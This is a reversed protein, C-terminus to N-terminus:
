CNTIPSTTKFGAVCVADFEMAVIPGTGAFELVTAALFGTIFATGSSETMDVGVKVVVTALHASLKNSVVVHTFFTSSVTGSAETVLSLRDVLADAEDSNDGGTEVANLTERFSIVSPVCTGLLTM